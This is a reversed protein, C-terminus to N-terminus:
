LIKKKKLKKVKDLLEKKKTKKKVVKKKITVPVIKNRLSNLELLIKELLFKNSLSTLSDESFHDKILLEIDRLAVLAKDKAAKSEILNNLKQVRDFINRKYDEGVQYKKTLSYLFEQMQYRNIDVFVDSVM